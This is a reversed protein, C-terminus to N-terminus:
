RVSMGSLFMRFKTWISAHCDAAASPHWAGARGISSYAACYPPWVPPRRTHWDMVQQYAHALDLVHSEGFRPGAIQLGVPM